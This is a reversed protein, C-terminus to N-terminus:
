IRENRCYKWGTKTIVGNNFGISTGDTLVITNRDSWYSVEYSGGDEDYIVTDSQSVEETFAMIEPLEPLQM